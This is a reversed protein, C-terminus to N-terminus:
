NHDDRPIGLVIQFQAQLAQCFRRWATAHFDDHNVIGRRIGGRFHDFSSKGIDLENPAVFIEAERFPLLTAM